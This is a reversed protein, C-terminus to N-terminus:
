ICMCIFICKKEDYLTHFCTRYGLRMLQWGPHYCMYIYTYIYICICIYVCVHIYMYAYAYMCVYMCVLACICVCVYMCSWTYACICVCVHACICVYMCVCMSTCMCVCVHACICVCIHMYAYIYMYKHISYSIYLYMCICKNSLWFSDVSLPRLDHHVKEFGIYPVLGQQRTWATVRCVHGSGCKPEHFQKGWWAWMAGLSGIFLMSWCPELKPENGVKIGM